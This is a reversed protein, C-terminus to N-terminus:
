PTDADDVAMTPNRADHAYGVGIPLWFFATDSVDKQPPRVVGNGIVLDSILGKLRYIHPFAPRGNGGEQTIEALRREVAAKLYYAPDTPHKEDEKAFGQILLPWRTNRVLGAAGGPNGDVPRPDELIVIAPVPTEAGLTTRGRYVRGVMDFGYGAAETMGEMHATLRKLIVLQRPMDPM